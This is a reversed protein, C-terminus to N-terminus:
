FRVTMMAMYNRGAQPFFYPTGGYGYGNSSYKTDLVNNLLLSWVISKVGGPSWTYSMRLDNVWYDSLKVNDNQENDLYQSGVYKSLWVIEATAIPKWSLQSGGIIGPSLIITTNRTVPLGNEFLLYNNNQNISWTVNANWNWRDSLRIGGSFELGTRYSSGVNERIPNGTADIAGTQVLQDTYNMLYYNVEFAYLKTNRRLGLELNHLREPKPRTTNELYDTRNPERNAVAFSTYLVNKESLRYSLGAKPNFFNFQDDVSYSSQDDRVGVTTYNVYRYQVDVFSNLRDNIRYNWKLFLNGDGKDSHGDYYTYDPPISGAYQSWIIEGFHRAKGYHHFAGGLTWNSKEGQYQVNFTAGYFKNDLWKRVVMDSASLTTDTLTIDPLGVSAFTRGQHYEEYFGKGTTYHMSATMSWADTFQHTAHLQYHDQRYDDVQNKYYGSIQGQSDYLAGAYNMTRNSGLTAEDVGYWSQYTRETGGFTIAKIITKDGFYGASMYYSGLDASARDVYGDSKISSAKVDLVWRKNILGTGARMTYRQSAFSGGAAVLEGYPDAQLSTTQLNISAGFAAAGNTSTGVGRQVQISQTSSAVDPIDVWYTSQSESDNYPIGNITVNVRTADSGRIRIGTYGIGAGADSTTVVSPTWNLLYPLDQGFNQKQLTPGAVNIFTTPTNENARTAHVIVEETLIPNEEMVVEMRADERLVVTELHDRMGLFKFLVEYNGAPIRDFRFVGFEDTVASHKSELIQVTAGALPRSGSERVVGSISLQGFGPISMGSLCVTLLFRNM